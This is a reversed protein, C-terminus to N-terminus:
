TSPGALGRDFGGSRRAERHVSLEDVPRDTLREQARATRRGVELLQARMASLTDEVTFGSTRAAIAAVAVHGTIANDLVAATDLGLDKAAAANQHNIKSALQATSRRALTQVAEDTFVAWPRLERIETVALGPGFAREQRAQEWQVTVEDVPRRQELLAVTAGWTAQRQPSTMDEARFRGQLEARAGDSFVLAGLVASEAEVTGLPRLLADGQEPVTKAAARRAERGQPSTLHRALEALDPDIRARRGDAVELRQSAGTAVAVSTAAAELTARPGHNVSQGVMLDLAGVQRRVSAELVMRAYEQHAAPAPAESVLAHVAYASVHNAHVEQELQVRTATTAPSEWEARPHVMLDQWLARCALDGFDSAALWPVDHVKAPDFLAAGVLAREAITAPSAVRPALDAADDDGTEPRPDDPRPDDPSPSM